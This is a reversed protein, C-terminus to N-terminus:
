FLPRDPLHLPPPRTTGGPPSVSVLLQQPVLTGPGLNGACLTRSPAPGMGKRVEGGVGGHGLAWGKGPCLALPAERPHPGQALHSSSLGVPIKNCGTLDPGWPKRLLRGRGHAGAMVCPRVLARGRSVM